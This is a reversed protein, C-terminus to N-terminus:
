LKCQLTISETKPNEHSDSNHKIWVKLEYDIFVKLLYHPTRTNYQFKKVSMVWTFKESLPMEWECTIQIKILACHKPYQSALLNKNHKISHKGYYAKFIIMSEFTLLNLTFRVSNTEWIIVYLYEIYNKFFSSLKLSSILSSM